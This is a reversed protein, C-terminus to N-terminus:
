HKLANLAKLLKDIGQMKENWVIKRRVRKKYYHFFHSVNDGPYENVYPHKIYYETAYVDATVKGNKNHISYVKDIIDMRSFPVDVINEADMIYRKTM